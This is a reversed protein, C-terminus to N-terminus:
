LGVSKGWVIIHLVDKLTTVTAELALLESYLDALETDDKDHLQKKLSVAFRLPAAEMSDSKQESERADGITTKIFEMARINAAAMEWAM